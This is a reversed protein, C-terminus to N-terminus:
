STVEIPQFLDCRGEYKPWIACKSVMFPQNACLLVPPEVQALCRGPTAKKFRGSPTRVFESFRCDTCRVESSM